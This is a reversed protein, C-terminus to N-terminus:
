LGGVVAEDQALQTKRDISQLYKMQNKAINLSERQYKEQEKSKKVDSLAQYMEKSGLDYATNSKTAQPTAISKAHQETLRDLTEMGIAGANFLQIADEMAETMKEWPTMLSNTLSEGAQRMKEQQKALEELAKKEEHLLDVERSVMTIHKLQAEDLGARSLKYLDIERATMGWTDHELLLAKLTDDASKQLAEQEKLKDIDISKTPDEKKKEPADYLWGMYKRIWQAVQNLYGIIDALMEVLPTLIPVVLSGVHGVFAKVTTWLKTWSDNWQEVDAAQEKSFTIGLRRAAERMEDIGASGKQLIHVMDGGSKGFLEMAIALQDAESFGQAADAIDKLQEDPALKQLKEAELNLSTLLNTQGGQLYKNLKQSAGVVDGAGDLNAQYKLAALDELDMGLKRADKATQDIEAQVSKLTAGFGALAGVVVGTVIGALGGFMSGLKGMSSGLSGQFSQGMQAVRGEAKKAGTFVGSANIGTIISIESITAM